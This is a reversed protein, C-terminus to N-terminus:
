MDTARHRLAPCMIASSTTVGMCEDMEDEVMKDALRFATQVSVRSTAQARTMRPNDDLAKASPRCLRAARLALGDAGFEFTWCYRSSLSSDNRATCWWASVRVCAITVSLGPACSGGPSSRNVVRLSSMM